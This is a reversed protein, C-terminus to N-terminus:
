SKPLINFKSAFNSNKQPSLAYNSNYLRISSSEYTCNSSSPNPNNIDVLNNNSNLLYPKEQYLHPFKGSVKYSLIMEKFQKKLKIYSNVDLETNIYGYNNSYVRSVKKTCFLKAFVAELKPIKMNKRKIIKTDTPPVFPLKQNTSSIKNKNKPTFDPEKPTKTNQITAFSTKTAGITGNFNSNVTAVSKRKKVEKIEEFLYSM